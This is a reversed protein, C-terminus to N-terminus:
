KLEFKVIIPNDDPEIHRGLVEDSSIRDSSVFGYLANNHAMLPMFFALEDIDNVISNKGRASAEVYSGSQKHDIIGWYINSDLKYAIFSYSPANLFRLVLPVDKTLESIQDLAVSEVAVREKYAEQAAIYKEGYQMIYKKELTSPSSVQYIANDLASVLYGDCLFNFPNSIIGSNDINKNFFLDSVTQNTDINYFLLNPCLGKQIYEKNPKYDGYFAVWSDNLVFFTDAMYNTKIEREFQGNTSFVFLKRLSCDWIYIKDERVNVDTIKVYQGPAVGREGIKRVFKGSNDFCLVSCTIDEDVIYYNSDTVLIKDVSGILCEKKTELPIYSISDVFSSMMVENETTQLPVDIVTAEREDTKGSNSCGTLVVFSLLLYKLKMIITFINICILFVGTCFM